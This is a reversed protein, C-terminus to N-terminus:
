SDGGSSGAGGGRVKDDRRVGLDDFVRDPDPKVADPSEQRKVESKRETSFVKDLIVKFVGVFFQVVWAWM